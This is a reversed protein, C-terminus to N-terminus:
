SSKDRNDLHLHYHNNNIRYVNSPAIHSRHRLWIYIRQFATFFGGSGQNTVLQAAAPSYDPPWGDWKTGALVVGVLM